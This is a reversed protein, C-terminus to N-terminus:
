LLTFCCMALLALSGQEDVCCLVAYVAFSLEFLLACCLYCLEACATFFLVFCCLVTCCLVASATFCVAKSMLVACTAYCQM